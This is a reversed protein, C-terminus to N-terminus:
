VLVAVHDSKSSILTNQSSQLTLYSSETWRQTIAKGNIIGTASIGPHTLFSKTAQLLVRREEQHQPGGGSRELVTLLKRSVALSPLQGGQWMESGTSM